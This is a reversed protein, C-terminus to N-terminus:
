LFIFRFQKHKPLSQGNNIGTCEYVVFRDHVGFNKSRIARSPGCRKPDSTHRHTFGLWGGVGEGGLFPRWIQIPHPLTKLGERGRGRNMQISLDRQKLSVQFLHAMGGADPHTKSYIIYTICLYLGAPPRRITRRTQVRCQTCLNGCLM